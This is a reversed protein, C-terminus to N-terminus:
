NQPAAFPNNFYQAGIDVWESLLKLEATTLRGAHTGGPAFLDFFRPSALAGAPSMPPSTGVTVLVPIPNGNADLILNGNADTEFLPNGNADTAQVQRDVLAGNVVEQENDGFFLERYSNFHDAEDPSPGDSLDIQGAPVQAAGMADAPSHCTNCTNDALVTVGDTDLIVRPVSWIPHVHMEYNITIRCLATWNTVCGPDVPALTSLDSYRYAFSPDKARVAPDTWVDDFVVNVSPNPTGNIRTYTQAMTEGADAFLAPETNPFPSGTTAAGTNASPAEADPRGHPLQSQATHCGNCELEEGAKVQLWNQHRQTIRRANADLVSVAFAINAPVKVRVSGDPEIPAYGIIERMLQAQSVGFATDDFDAVDDDPMSVAKEIRLFRAPRQASTTVGPNSVAAINVSATGDFDYV